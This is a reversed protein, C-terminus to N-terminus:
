DNSRVPTATRLGEAPSVGPLATGAFSMFGLGRLRVYTLKHEVSPGHDQPIARWGEGDYESVGTSIIPHSM